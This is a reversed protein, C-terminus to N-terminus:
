HAQTVQIGLRAALPGPASHLLAVYLRALMVEIRILPTAPPWLSAYLRSLSSGIQQLLEAGPVCSLQHMLNEAIASEGVSMVQGHSPDIRPWFQLLRGKKIPTLTCM